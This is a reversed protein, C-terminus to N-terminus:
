AYVPRTIKLKLEAMVEELYPVIFTWAGMNKPEEQCWVISEVNKFRSLIKVVTDHPFPYLQEIRLIYTDDQKREERAEILDYYVKGTCLIVRRIKNDPKLKILEGQKREADDPLVRHFQTGPGMEMLSSVARKHRLLSKPTM